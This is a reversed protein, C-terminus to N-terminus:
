KTKGKRYKLDIQSNSKHRLDKDKGVNPQQLKKKKKKAEIIKYKQGNYHLYVPIEIHNSYKNGQYDTIDLVTNVHKNAM